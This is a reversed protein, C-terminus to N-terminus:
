KRGQTNKYIATGLHFIEEFYSKNQVSLIGLSFLQIGLVLTIGGIFFTHPAQTFANAVAETADPFPTVQALKQYNTWCHILVWANAYLSMALFMLSPLIFFMVPRLLFGSFFIDWTHHVLKMNSRRRKKTPKATQSHWHLHAPIEKVPAGLLLAKHIIEPNIEMGSSRLNLMRLFEADYVRVMGTLTSLSRKAAISLFRNAWVSLTKRLWPVNSVSGGRMYPSAAVVGARTKQIQKLLQRIHEPAYSLDLDVVVIYDGNCGSFGTRLAQGLGKNVPHHLVRVNSRTRAFAEALWGTDDKSGDNVVVMEWDYESELSQMYDWLTKLNDQIIASENYAPAVLSVLPRSAFEATPLGAPDPCGYRYPLNPLSGDPTLPSIREQM